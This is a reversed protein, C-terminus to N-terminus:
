STHIAKRVAFGAQALQKTIDLVTNRDKQKEPEPLDAYPRISPHIRRSNDRPEGKRWGGLLHFAMWRRHEMEALSEMEKDPITAPEAGKDVAEAMSYREWGIARLKVDFHAAVYRNSNRYWENLNAWPHMATGDDLLGEVFSEDTRAPSIPMM